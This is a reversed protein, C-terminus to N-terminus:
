IDSRSFSLTLRPLAVFQAILSRERLNPILLSSVIGLRRLHGSRPYPPLPTAIGIWKGFSSFETQGLGAPADTDAPSEPLPILWSRTPHFSTLSHRRADFERQCALMPTCRGSVGLVQSASERERETERTKAADRQRGGSRLMRQDAADRSQPVSGHFTRFIFSYRLACSLLPSFSSPLPLVSLAPSLTLTTEEDFTILRPSASTLDSSRYRFPFPLLSCSVTTLLIVKAVYM